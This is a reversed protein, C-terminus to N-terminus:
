SEPKENTSDEMIAQAIIKHLAAAEAAEKEHQAAKAAGMEKDNCVALWEHMKANHYDAGYQLWHLVTQWQEPTLAVAIGGKQKFDFKDCLKDADQGDGNVTYGMSELLDTCAECHLCDKCTAM